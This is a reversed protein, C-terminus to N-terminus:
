RRHRHLAAAGGALAVGAAILLLSGAPWAAGSRASLTSLTVATPVGRVFGFDITDDNQNTLTVSAYIYGSTSSQGNSDQSPDGSNPTTPDWGALPQGTGFASGPIVVCYDGPNLNNFEYYGNSDTTTTAIPTMSNYDANPDCAGSFLWVPVDSIGPEGEDQIGDEDQDDWVFNGLTYSVTCPVHVTVRWSDEGTAGTDNATFSATNEVTYDGCADYPGIRRQYTFTKPVNPYCVTGLSGAYTDNVEVCEDVETIIANSFNIGASGSFATTGAPTKNMQYDYDYNQLTATATNTRSSADPLNASYTCTLTGGAALSYPFGVGCDVTAPIDPSIVDSVSNITAAIPAPNYVSISGRVAWDSDAYTADVKVSYNVLFQQGLSLTLASQDAWKDITWSYTRKFSPQADKTVALAYCNVTVSASDSQGTQRITATNNHTGADEDCTFTKTYWVSGSANFAWSGGNTDDVNISDHIPTPSSPFTTTASPSPGFPTGLHGSHNTITVKATVKYTGGAKPQPSTGGTISINVRYSYCGTEGPDLVPNGNVDVPASALLDNPPPYGNYLEAVIALNETPRGGGNTVCIQGEVWAEQTGNDKTVTITYRSTGSDGRFLDWTAPTVSKDITWRYTIRWSPTISVTASLTTGAQGQRQAYGPVAESMVLVSALGVIVLLVAIKRFANM